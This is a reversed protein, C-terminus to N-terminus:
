SKGLDRNRRYSGSRNRRDRKRGAGDGGGDSSAPPSHQSVSAPLRNVNRKWIWMLGCCILVATASIWLSMALYTSKYVFEVRHTGPELFLGRFLYNTRFIPYKVGDVRATWGPYFTDSLVLLARRHNTAEIVLSEGRDTLSHIEGAPGDSEATPIDPPAVKELPELIAERRPDFKGDVMARLVQKQDGDVVRWKPAFYARPLCNLREILQPDRPANEWLIKDFPPGAVIYRLAMLDAFKEKVEPPGSLMIGFFHNYRELPMGAPTLPVMNERLTAFPEGAEIAWQWMELRRDGYIYQHAQFYSSLFRYMSKEKVVKALNEPRQTYIGEPGTPQIQRCIVVLNVFALAVATAPLWRVPRRWLALAACLGWAAISFGVALAYDWLVANIQETSPKGPHAMLWLLFPQWLLAVLFGIGMLAVLAGTIRCCLRMWREPAAERKELLTQFGLAGLATLAYAVFLYFKPAFRLHGLGPLWHHLFAYVPTFKGAAMLLGAGMLLFNFRVLFRRQQNFDTGIAGKRFLAPLTFFAMLLPLIGVYCHGVSLEYLGPGWYSNPYGATGYLFPFLVTLWHRPHVSAIGLLPDSEGARESLPLLEKLLALQPMALLLAILGAFGLLLASQLIVQWNRNGAWYVAVYGGVILALYYFYEGDAVMQIAMVVALAVITRANALLAANYGAGVGTATRELIRSTLALTFPGWVMAMFVPAGEIWTMMQSSFSFAVAALLAPALSLKWTRALFYWGWACLTFHFTWWFKIMVAGGPIVFMWNPPYFIGSCPQAAWPAGCQLPYWIWWRGQRLLEGQILRSQSDGLLFDRLLLMRGGFWVDGLFVVALVALLFYPWARLFFSNPTKRM